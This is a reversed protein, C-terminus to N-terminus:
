PSSPQATEVWHVAKPDLCIVGWHGTVLPIGKGDRCKQFLTSREQLRRDFEEQPMEFIDDPDKPKEERRAPAPVSPLVSEPTGTDSSLAAPSARQKAKVTAVLGYGVGGLFVITIIILSDKPPM